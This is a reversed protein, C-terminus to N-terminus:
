KLIQAVVGKKRLIALGKNFDNLKKRWDGKANKMIGNRLPIKQLTVLWEIDNEEGTKKLLYAGLKKDVLALRIRNNVLKKM